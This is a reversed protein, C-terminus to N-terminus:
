LKSFLACVTTPSSSPPVKKTHRILNSPKSPVMHSTFQTSHSHSSIYLFLYSVYQELTDNRGKMMMRMQYTVLLMKLKNLKQVNVSPGNVSNSRKELLPKKKM